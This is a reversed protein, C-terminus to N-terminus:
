HERDEGHIARARRPREAPGSRINQNRGISVGNAWHVTVLGKQASNLFKLLNAEIGAENPFPNANRFDFVAVDYSLFAADAIFGPSAEINVEAFAKGADLINKLEASTNKWVHGNFSNEGTVVVARRPRPAQAPAQASLVIPLTVALAAVIARIRM